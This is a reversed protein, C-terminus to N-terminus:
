QWFLENLEQPSRINALLGSLDIKHITFDCFMTTDGKYIERIKIEREIGKQIWTIINNGQFQFFKFLRIFNMTEMDGLFGPYFCNINLSSTSYDYMSPISDEYSYYKMLVKKSPERYYHIIHALDVLLANPNNEIETKIIDLTLYGRNFRENEYYRALPEDFMDFHIFRVRRGAIHCTEVINEILARVYETRDRSFYALGTTYVTIPENSAASILVSEKSAGSASDLFQHFKHVRQAGLSEQRFLGRKEKPLDIGYLTNVNSIFESVTINPNTELLSDAYEQIFDYNHQNITRMNEELYLYIDEITGGKQMMRKLSLYKKKYILYKNYNDM